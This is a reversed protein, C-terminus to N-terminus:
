NSETGLMGTKAGLLFPKAGINPNKTVCVQRSITINLAVSGMMFMRCIKFNLIKQIKLIELIQCIKLMNFDLDQLM